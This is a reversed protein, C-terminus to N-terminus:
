APAPKLTINASLEKAERCQMKLYHFLKKMYEHNDPIVYKPDEREYADKLEDLSIYKVAQKDRVDLLLKEVPIEEWLRAVYVDLWTADRQGSFVGTSITRSTKMSFMLFIDKDEQLDRISFESRLQLEAAQMSLEGSPVRGCVCTWKAPDIDKSDARQGLLIRQTSACLVWVNVARHWFGDRHIIHRPRSMIFHGESNLVDLMAYMKREYDGESCAKATAFVSSFAARCSDPVKLMTAATDSDLALSGLDTVSVVDAQIIAERLEGSGDLLAALRPSLDGKSHHGAM